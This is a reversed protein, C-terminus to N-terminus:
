RRITPRRAKSNNVRKSVPWAQVFDNRAPKLYEVGADGNLWPELQKEAPLVPMRDHVRSVLTNPETIIM